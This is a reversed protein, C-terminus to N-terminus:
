REASLIWDAAVVGSWLAGLTVVAALLIVVWKFGLEAEYRAVRRDRLERFFSDATNWAPGHFAAVNYLRMGKYEDFPTQRDYAARCSNSSWQAAIGRAGNEETIFCFVPPLEAPFHDADIPWATSEYTLLGGAIFFVPSAVILLRRLRESRFRPWRVLAM